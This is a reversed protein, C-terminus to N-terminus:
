VSYSEILKESIVSSPYNGKGQDKCKWMKKQISYFMEVDHNQALRQFEAALFKQLRMKNNKNTCFRSLDGASPLKDASRWFINKSGHKFKKDVQVSRRSQESGKIWENVDYPDNVMVIVGATKHRGIITNFIKEAYDRWSYDTEDRKEREEASPTAMRWIMGMDVLAAYEDLLESHVAVYNLTHLM